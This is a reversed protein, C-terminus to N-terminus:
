PHNASINKLQTTGSTTVWTYIEFDSGQTTVFAIAYNASTSGASLVASQIRLDIKAESGDALIQKCISQAKEQNFSKGQVTILREATAKSLDFLQMTSGFGEFDNCSLYDRGVAVLVTGATNASLGRLEYSQHSYASSTSTASSVKVLENSVKLSKDSVKDGGLPNMTKTTSLSRIDFVGVQTGFFSNGASLDVTLSNDVLTTVAASAAASLTTFSRKLIRVTSGGTLTAKTYLEYGGSSAQVFSPQSEVWGTPPTIEVSTSTSGTSSLSAVVIKGSRSGQTAKVYSFDTDNAFSVDKEEFADSTITVATKTGGYDVVTFDTKGDLVTQVVVWSGATSLWAAREADFSLTSAFLRSASTDTAIKYKYIQLKGSRGTTFVLRDGSSSLSPRGDFYKIDVSSLNSGTRPDGVATTKKGSSSSGCGFFLLGVWVLMAVKPLSWGKSAVLCFNNM